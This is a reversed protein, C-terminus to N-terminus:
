IFLYGPLYCIIEATQLILNSTYIDFGISDVILVPGYYMAFMTFAIISCCITTQRLSPFRFMDIPTIM